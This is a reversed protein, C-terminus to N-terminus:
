KPFLVKTLVFYLFFFPKQDGLGFHFCFVYLLGGFAVVCHNDMNQFAELCGQPMLGLSTVLLVSRKRSKSVIAKRSLYHFFVTVSSFFPPTLLINYLIWLVQELGEM